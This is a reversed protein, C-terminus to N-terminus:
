LHPIRTSHMGEQSSLVVILKDANEEVITWFNRLQDVNVNRFEIEDKTIM